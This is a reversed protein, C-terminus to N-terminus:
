WYFFNQRKFCKRRSKGSGLTFWTYKVSPIAYGEDGM